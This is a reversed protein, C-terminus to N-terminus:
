ADPAPPNVPLESKTDVSKKVDDESTEDSEASKRDVEKAAEANDQSIHDSKHDDDDHHHRHKEEPENDKSDKSDDDNAIKDNRSKVANAEEDQVEKKSKMDEENSDADANKSNVKQRNGSAEGAASDDEDSEKPKEVNAKAPIAKDDNNETSDVSNNDNTNSEGSNIPASFSTYM